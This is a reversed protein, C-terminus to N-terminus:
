IDFLFMKNWNKPISFYRTGFWEEFNDFTTKRIIRQWEIYKEEEDKGQNSREFGERLIKECGNAALEECEDLKQAVFDIVDKSTSDYKGNYATAKTFADRTMDFTDKTKQLFLLENGSDAVIANLCPLVFLTRIDEETFSTGQRHNHWACISEAGNHVMAAYKPTIDLFNDDGNSSIIDFMNIGTDYLREGPFEANSNCKLPFLLAIESNQFNKYGDQVHEYM